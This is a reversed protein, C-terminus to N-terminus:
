ERKDRIESTPEIGMARELLIVKVHKVGRGSSWKAGIPVTKPSTESSNRRHVVLRCCFIQAIEVHHQRIGAPIRTPGSWVEADQEEASPMTRRPSTGDHAKSVSRRATAEVAEGVAKAFDKAFRALKTCVSLPCLNAPLALRFQKDLNPIVLGVNRRRM